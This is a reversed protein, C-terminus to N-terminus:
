PAVVEAAAPPAAAEAPAPDEDGVPDEPFPWGPGAEGAVAKAEVTVVRTPPPEPVGDFWGLSLHLWSPGVSLLAVVLAAALGWEGVRQRRAPQRTRRALGWALLLVLGG